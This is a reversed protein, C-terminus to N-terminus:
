LAVPRSAGAVGQNGGAGSSLAMRLLIATPRPVSVVSPAAAANHVPTALAWDDGAGGIVVLLARRHGEVDM